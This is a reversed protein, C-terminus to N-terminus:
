RKLEILLAEVPDIAEDSHTVAPRLLVDGTKLEVVRTSGDELTFKVRGGKVVYVVNSPHSHVPTTDGAKPKYSLVRVKDDEAMVKLHQVGYQMADQARAATPLMFASIGVFFALGVSRIMEDEWRQVATITFVTTSLTVRWDDTSAPYLFAM